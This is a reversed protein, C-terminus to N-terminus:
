KTNDEEDLAHLLKQAERKANKIDTSEAIRRILDYMLPAVIILKANAMCEEHEHTSLTDTTCLIQAIPKQNLCKVQQYTLPETATFNELCMIRGTIGDFFWTGPTHKSTM